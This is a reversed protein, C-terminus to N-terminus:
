ECYQRMGAIFCRQGPAARWVPPRPSAAAVVRRWPATQVQLRLPGAGGGPTFAIRCAGAPTITVTIASACGECLLARPIECSAAQAAAPALCALLAVVAARGSMIM